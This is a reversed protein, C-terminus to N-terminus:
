YLGYNARGMYPGTEDAMTRGAASMVVPVDRVPEFTRTAFVATCKAIAADGHRKGGRESLTREDVPIRPVGRIKKIGRFDDLYDPDNPIPSSKDEFHARMPPMNEIYWSSNLNVEEIRDVGYRQRAREALFAGNGGKDLAGGSFLPLRDVVFFLCQEQQSFPCNWLELVLPTLYRDGPMEQLPWIVTLDATRGFDEGFWSHRDKVTMEDLLPAIESELWAQMVAYRRRDSWDVFDAVPPSWRVVPITDVMNSEIMARSMYSGGAKAPICFLEEDADDGYQRIVDARWAREGEETWEIGRRLCVRKYLGKGLADDFTIKHVSYPKRGSRIEKIGENFPHDEGNHTSIVVVRGGWILMAIAAKLLGALDDHFAAEDIVIKGQKSRLNRPRSSLAEIKFGSSFRIRFALIAKKEEGEDEWVFEEIEAAALNYFKAWDAADEIFQIAMDKTYGIYYVDMGHESAALLADEAAECWSLGIRRSKECWKVDADDQIWRQQYPLLVGTPTRLERNEKQWNM